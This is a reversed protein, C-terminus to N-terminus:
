REVLIRAHTWNREDQEHHGDGEHDNRFPRSEVLSEAEVRALLASALLALRLEAHDGAASLTIAFLEIEVHRRLRGLEFVVEGRANLAVELVERDHVGM